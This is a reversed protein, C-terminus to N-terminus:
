QRRIRSASRHRRARAHGGAPGAGTGSPRPGRGSRPRRGPGRGRGRAIRRRGRVPPGAGAVAAGCRRDGAAARVALLAALFTDGAGTPDIERDTATPRYRLVEGPGDDGSRSWCAARRWGPDRAPRAGPHLFGPWRRRADHGARRRPPERRGPRGPPPAGVADRAGGNSRAQGARPERLMGQWGVVVYRRPRSSRRGRTTSRAPSRSWRGPGPPRAVREPLRSRGLPVGPWRPLDPDRGPRRRSTRSSRRRPRARRAPPRRRRRAAPELETARRARGRRRRHDGGDAARAPGDDAGRVDRWRRAALRAPRRGHHRPQGLRRPRGRRHPGPWGRRAEPGGASGTTYKVVRGSRM